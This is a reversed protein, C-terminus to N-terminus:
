LPTGVAWEPAHDSHNAWTADGTVSSFDFNSFFIYDSKQTPHNVQGSGCPTVGGGCLTNENYTTNYGGDTRSMDMADAEFFNGSGAPSYGPLYMPNMSSTSPPYANFDGGVIVKNGNWYGNARSAVDQIQFSRDTSNTTVHTVCAVIPQGGGFASTQICGM